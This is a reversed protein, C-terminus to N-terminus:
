PRAGAPVNRRPRETTEDGPTLEILKARIAARVETPTVPPLESCAAPHLTCIALRLRNTEELVVLALAKFLIEDDYSSQAGSRAGDLASQAAADSIAQKQAASMEIVAGQATCRWDAVPVGVLGSLDPNILAAPDSAYDPTHASRHIESVKGPVVPHAPDCVVVVSAAAPAAILALALLLRRM